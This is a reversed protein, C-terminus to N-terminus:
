PELYPHVKRMKQQFHKVDPRPPITHQIIRTNYTQLDQYSWAFVDQYKNFLKLYAKKEELSISKGINVNKPNEVTVLNTVGYALCSSGTKVNKPNKYIERLYFIIELNVVGMPMTHIKPNTTNNDKDINHENDEQEALMGQFTDDDIALDKLNEENTLFSIIQEDGEFVRWNTINNSVFPNYL